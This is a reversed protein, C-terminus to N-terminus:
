LPRQGAMIEDNCSVNRPLQTKVGYHVQAASRQKHVPLIPDAEYVHYFLM